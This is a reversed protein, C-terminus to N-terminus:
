SPFLATFHLLNKGTQPKKTAVDIDSANCNVTVVGTTKQQYQVEPSPSVLRQVLVPQKDLPWVLAKKM